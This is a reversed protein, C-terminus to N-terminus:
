TGEEDYEEIEKKEEEFVFSSRFSELQNTAERSHELLAKLTPDGYFLPLEYVGQVHELFDRLVGQVETADDHLPLMSQILRRVYWVLIINLALSIILLFSVLVLM